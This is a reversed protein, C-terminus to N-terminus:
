FFFPLLSFFHQLLETEQGCCLKEEGEDELVIMIVCRDGYRAHERVLLCFLGFFFGLFWFVFEIKIRTMLIFVLENPHLVQLM